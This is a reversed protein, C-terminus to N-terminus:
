PRVVVKLEHRDRAGALRDAARDLGVRGTILGHVDVIGREIAALGEAISGIGAGLLEVEGLVAASLDTGARAAGGEVLGPASKLVIRGRPRVFSLATALGEPTGTCEVVVHQDHRMGAEGVHRHKIGWRECRSFREPNRGLLRTTPSQRALVQACLLGMVGDGLVTILGRGGALRAAHVAAGAAFAFVAAEDPVKAPIPLAAAKPVAVREALCGNTSGFGLVRRGRCHTSLGGRCLECIGCVLVPNLVVRSGFPGHEAKEVIGACEHGLITGEDGERVAEFDPTAIGICAPRVIIGGPELAPEPTRPDFAAAGGAIRVARM